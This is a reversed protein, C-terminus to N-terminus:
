AYLRQGRLRGFVQASAQPDHALAQRLQESALAQLQWSVQWGRWNRRCDARARYGQGGPGLCYWAVSAHGAALAEATLAPALVVRLRCGDLVGGAIALRQRQLSQQLSPCVGAGADVGSLLRLGPLWGQKLDM